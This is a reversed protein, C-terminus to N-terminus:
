NPSIFQGNVFEEDKVRQRRVKILVHDCFLGETQKVRFCRLNPLNERLRNLSLNQCCFFILPHILLQDGVSITQLNNALTQGVFLAIEQKVLHPLLVILQLRHPFNEYNGLIQGFLQLSVNILAFMCFNSFNLSNHPLQSNCVHKQVIERLLQVKVTVGM